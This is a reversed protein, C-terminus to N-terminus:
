EFFKDYVAYATDDRIVLEKEFLDNIQLYRGTVFPNQLKIM